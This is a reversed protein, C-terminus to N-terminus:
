ILLYIIYVYIHIYLYIHIYTHIDKCLVYLIYIKVNNKLIIKKKVTLIKMWKEDWNMGIKYTGESTIFINKPKLDRHITKGIELRVLGSV